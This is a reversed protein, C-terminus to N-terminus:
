LLQRRVFANTILSIRQNSLTTSFFRSSAHTEEEDLDLDLQNDNDDGKDIGLFTESTLKPLGQNDINDKHFMLEIDSQNMNNLVTGRVSRMALMYSNHTNVSM